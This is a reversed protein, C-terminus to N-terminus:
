RPSRETGRFARALLPSSVTLLGGLDDETDFAPRWPEAPPTPEETGGVGDIAGDLEPRRIEGTGDIQLQVPSDKEAGTRGRPRRRTSTPTDDLDSPRPKFLRLTPERRDDLTWGRPVIMADAHRNCLLNPESTETGDIAVIWFLLDEPVM